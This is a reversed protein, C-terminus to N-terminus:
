EPRVQAQRSANLDSGAYTGLVVATLQTKPLGSSQIYCIVLSAIGVNSVEKTTLSAHAGLCHPRNSAGQGCRSLIPLDFSVERSPLLDLTQANHSSADGIQKKKLLFAEKRM